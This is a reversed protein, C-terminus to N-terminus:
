RDQLTHHAREVRGKAQSTNGLMEVTLVQSFSYHRHWRKQTVFPLAYLNAVGM